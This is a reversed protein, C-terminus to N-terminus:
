AEPVVAEVDEVHVRRHYRMVPAKLRLNFLGSVWTTEGVPRRASRGDYERPPQGGRDGAVDAPPDDESAQKARVPHLESLRRWVRRGFPKGSRRFTDPLGNAKVVSAAGEVSAFDHRIAM